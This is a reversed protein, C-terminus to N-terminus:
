ATSVNHLQWNRGALLGLRHRLINGSLTTTATLDIKLDRQAGTVVAQPDVVLTAPDVEDPEEQQAQWRAIWAPDRLAAQLQEAFAEAGNASFALQPDAGRALAPDPLTLHFRTAM